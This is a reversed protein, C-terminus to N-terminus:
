REKFDLFDFCEKCLENKMPDSYFENGKKGICRIETLKVMDLNCKTKGSKEYLHYLGDEFKYIYGFM